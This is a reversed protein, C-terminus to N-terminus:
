REQEYHNWQAGQHAAQYHAPNYASGHRQRLKALNAAAVDGLTLGLDAAVAAAYWLVDGLEDLMAQSPGPQGHYHAKLVHQQLEAAEVTLKGATYLLDARPSRTQMAQRQYADLTLPISLDYTMDEDDHHNM